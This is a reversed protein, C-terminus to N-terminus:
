VHARGIEDHPPLPYSKGVRIREMASTVDAVVGAELDVVGLRNNNFRCLKM